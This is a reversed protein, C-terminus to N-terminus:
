HFEQLFIHITMYFGTLQNEATITPSTEKHYNIVKSAHRFFIQFYKRHLKQRTTM